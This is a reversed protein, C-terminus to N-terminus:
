SAHGGALVSLLASAKRQTEEAEAQPDSDYVIGAGARVLATGDAVYASRIVVATDVDGAGNLWGVAGGYPGRRTAETERLIEMARRKPAGTLTGMNLCAAIAHLADLGDRLEGRVESVLHMLRAYRVVRMLATLRRTGPKAIRAVDNRALDVLMMHEAAEKTDLLLEAELRDDDDAHAGRRRTGAIPRIAVEKGGPGDEVLVSTEPSAGLLTFDGRAVFFRYSDPELERLRVYAGLPDPCPVSFSRSPVIQYVEGAIIQERMHGVVERYGADDIDVSVGSQAAEEKNTGSCTRPAECREVLGALRGEADHYARESASRDTNGFATCIALPRAGPEFLLLSDALWFVFDPFGHPDPQNDALGEESAAFDFGFIGPLAIAFDEEGAPGALRALLRLIDLPSPALLRKEADIEECPAFAITLTDDNREAIHAALQDAVHDLIHAGHFSLATLVARRNRCEIRMAAREMLLTRGGLAEFLMTDPRRGRDTLAAYLALPDPTGDLRRQLAIAEGAGPPTM